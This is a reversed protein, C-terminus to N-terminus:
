RQVITLRLLEVTRRDHNKRCGRTTRRRGAQRLTHVSGPIERQTRHSFSTCTIRSITSADQLRPSSRTELARFASASKTSRSVCVLCAPNCAHGNKLAFFKISVFAAYTEQWPRKMLAKSDPFISHVFFAEISGFPTRLLRPVVAAEDFRTVWDVRLTVVNHIRDQTALSQYTAAAVQQFRTSDPPV